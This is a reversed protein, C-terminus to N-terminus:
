GSQEVLSPGCGSLIRTASVIRGQVRFVVVAGLQRKKHYLAKSEAEFDQPPSMIEGIMSTSNSIALMGTLGCVFWHSM